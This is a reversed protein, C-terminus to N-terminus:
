RISKIMPHLMYIIYAAGIIKSGINGFLRDDFESTFYYRTAACFMAFCIVYKIKLSKVMQRVIHGEKSCEYVYDSVGQVFACYFTVIWTDVFIGVICDKYVSIYTSMNRQLVLAISILITYVVCATVIQMGIATYGGKEPKFNSGEDVEEKKHKRSYAKARKRREVYGRQSVYTGIALATSLVYWILVYIAGNMVSFVELKSSAVIFILSVVINKWESKFYDNIAANIENKSLGQFDYVKKM